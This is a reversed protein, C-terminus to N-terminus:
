SFLQIVSNSRIVSFLPVVFCSFLSYILYGGAIVSTIYYDDLEGLWGVESGKKFSKLLVQVVRGYNQEGIIVNLVCM